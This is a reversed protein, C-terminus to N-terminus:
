PFLSTGPLIVAIPVEDQAMDDTFPEDKPKILALSDVNQKPLLIIGPGVVTEKFRVGHSSRESSSKGELAMSKSILPQKGKNIIGSPPSIPPQLEGRSEPSQLTDQPQQASRTDLLEDAEVKPRILWTGGSAPNCTNSSPSVQREHNQLRLRKLPPHPVSFEEEINDM